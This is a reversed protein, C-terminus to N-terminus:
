EPLDSKRAKPKRAYPDDSVLTDLILLWYFESPVFDKRDLVGPIEGYREEYLQDLIFDYKKLLEGTQDIVDPTTPAQGLEGADFWVAGCPPCVDLEYSGVRNLLTNAFMWRRCTPCLRKGKRASKEDIAAIKQLHPSQIREALKRFPLLAGKCGDCFRIPFPDPGLARLNKGCAPCREISNTM